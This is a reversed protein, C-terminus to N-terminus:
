ASRRTRHELTSPAMGFHEPVAVARAACLCAILAYHHMAHSVVFMVERGITSSARAAAGDGYSIRSVAEIPRELPLHALFRARQRFDRTTQLAAQRETELRTDRARRDYDVSSDGLAEFLLTFHELGHRYHAGLAVGCDTGAYQADSLGTLFEEGQALAQDLAALLPHSTMVRKGLREM